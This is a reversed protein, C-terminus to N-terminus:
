HIKTTIKNTLKDFRFNVRCKVIDEIRGKPNQYLKIIDKETYKKSAYYRPKFKNVPKNFKFIEKSQENISGSISNLVGFLGADVEISINFRAPDTESKIFSSFPQKTIPDLYQLITKERVIMDNMILQLSNGDYSIPTVMVERAKNMTYDSKSIPKVKFESIAFASPAIM